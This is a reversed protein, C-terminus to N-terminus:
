RGRRATATRCGGSRCRTSGRLTGSSGCSTCSSAASRTTARRSWAAPRRRTGTPVGDMHESLELWRPQRGLGVRCPPDFPMEAASYRKCGKCRTAPMLLGLPAGIRKQVSTVFIIPEMETEPTLSAIAFIAGAGFQACSRHRARTAPQVRADSVIDEHMQQQDVTSLVRQLHKQGMTELGEPAFQGDVLLLGAVAKWAEAFRGPGARFAPKDVAKRLTDHYDRLMASPCTPWEEVPPILPGVDPMQRLLALTDAVNGARCNHAELSMRKHGMGGHATGLHLSEDVLRASASTFPEDPVLREDVHFLTRDVHAQLADADRLAPRSAELDTGRALHNLVCRGSFSQRAIIEVAQEGLLPTYSLLELTRERLAQVHVKALEARKGVDFGVAVGNVEHAGREVRPPKGTVSDIPFLHLHRAVDIESGAWEPAQLLVFKDINNHMHLGKCLTDYEGLWEAFGIVDAASQVSVQCTCDDAICRPQVDNGFKARLPLFIKMLTLCAYLFMSFLGGMVNGAPLSLLEMKGDVTLLGEGDNTRYFLMDARADEIADLTESLKGGALDPRSRILAEFENLAELTQEMDARPFANSMDQFCSLTRRDLDCRMQIGNAVAEGGSPVGIAYQVGLKAMVAGCLLACRAAKARKCDALLRDCRGIPRVKSTDKYQGNKDKKLLCQVLVTALLRQVVPPVVNTEVAEAIVAAALMDLEYFPRRHETRMGTAGPARKVRAMSLRETWKKLLREDWKPLAKLAAYFAQVREAWPTDYGRETYAARMKVKDIPPVACLLDIQKQRQTPGPPASPVDDIARVATRLDYTSLAVRVRVAINVRRLQAPMAQATRWKAVTPLRRKWDVEDWSLRMSRPLSLPMVEVAGEGPGKVKCAVVAGGGHGGGREAGVPQARAAAALTGDAAGGREVTTAAM